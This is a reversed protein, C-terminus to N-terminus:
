IHRSSNFFSPIGGTHLFVVREGVWKGQRALDILGAMAKATYVPDLLIGECRWLEKLAAESERSPVGYGSGVYDSNLHVEEKRFERNLGIKKSLRNAIDRVCEAFMPENDNRIGLIEVKSETMTKGVM